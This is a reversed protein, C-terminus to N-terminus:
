ISLCLTQTFTQWSVKLFYKITSVGHGCVFKYISVVAKVTVGVGPDYKVRFYFQPLHLQQRIGADICGCLHYGHLVWQSGVDPVHCIPSECALQLQVQVTTIVKIAKTAIIPIAYRHFLPKSRLYSILM